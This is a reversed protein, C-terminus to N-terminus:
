CSAPTSLVQAAVIDENQQSSEWSAIAGDGQARGPPPAPPTM